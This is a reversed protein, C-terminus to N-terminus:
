KMVENNRERRHKENYGRDERWDQIMDDVKGAGGKSSIQRLVFLSHRVGHAWIDWTNFFPNRTGSKSKDKVPPVIWCVKCKFPLHGCESKRTNICDNGAEDFWCIQGCWCLKSVSRDSKREDVLGNQGCMCIKPPKRDNKGLRLDKKRNIRHSNQGCCRMNQEMCDSNGKRVKVFHGCGAFVAASRDSGNGGCVPQHTERSWQRSYM